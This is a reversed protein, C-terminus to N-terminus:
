PGTAEEQELRDLNARQRAMEDEFAQMISEFRPSGWVPEFLEIRRPEFWFGFHRNRLKSELLDLAADFDGDYALCYALNAEEPALRQYNVLEETIYSQAESALSDAFDPEGSRRAVDAIVCALDAFQRVAEPRQSEDFLEPAAQQWAQLAAPYDGAYTHSLAYEIEFDPANPGLPELMQSALEGMAGYRGELMALQMRAWRSVPDTPNRAEWQRAVTELRDTDQLQVLANAMGFRPIPSGPDDELYRQNWAVSEDFHGRGGKVWGMFGVAPAYDPYSAVLVQLRQEAEEFRNMFILQRAVQAIHNPSLPDLAEAERLLELARNWNPGPPGQLANAYWQHAMAHNPLLQITKEFQEIAEDGELVMALALNAEGSEPALEMAREAAPVSIARGEELTMGGWSPLVEAVQAIGGWALAFDPDLAVARQLEALAEKMAETERTELGRMGRLYAGYAELNDTHRTQLRQEEEPTLEAELAKAIAESIESQMAFLNETTLPRDYIQAWLHEDSQADILQVNIRVMDGARQVAGEMVTAVGLERAIEPISKDSGEYRSVSTRSIVKLDGIHSLTTLLDDHIGDIFFEDEKIPSRNEFPLVAISQRSPIQAGRETDRAEDQRNGSAEGQVATGVVEEAVRGQAVKGEAVKASASDGTGAPDRLMFKDVLLVVVAIVLLGMILGNLKRGTTRAISETRDVDSERKVGEPTLEYAWALFLAVPLGIAVLAVVVPGITPPLSLLETLVETFQLLLWAGVAYAIGVRVVNRRKLEEFFSM